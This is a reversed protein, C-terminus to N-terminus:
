TNLKKLPDQATLYSPIFTPSGRFFLLWALRGGFGLVELLCFRM